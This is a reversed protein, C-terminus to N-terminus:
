VVVDGMLSSQWTLLNVKDLIQSIQFCALCFFPSWGKEPVFFSPVCKDLSPQKQQRGDKELRKSWDPCKFPKFVAYQCNLKNKFNWDSVVLRWYWFMLNWHGSLALYVFQGWYSWLPFGLDEWGFCCHWSPFMLFTRLSCHSNVM